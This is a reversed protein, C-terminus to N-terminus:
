RSTNSAKETVLSASNAALLDAIVDSGQYSLGM